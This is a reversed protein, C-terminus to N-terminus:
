LQFSLTSVNRVHLYAIASFMGGETKMRISIVICGVVSSLLVATGLVKVWDHIPLWTPLILVDRYVDCYKHRIQITVVTIYFIPLHHTSTSGGEM